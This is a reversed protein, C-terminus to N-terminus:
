GGVEVSLARRTWISKVIVGLLAPLKVLVIGASLSVLVAAAALNVIGAGMDIRFPRWPDRSSWFLLEGRKISIVFVWSLILYTVVMLLGEYALGQSYLFALTALAAPVGVVLVTISDRRSIHSRDALESRGMRLVSSKLKALNLMEYATVPIAMLYNAMAVIWVLEPYILATIIKDVHQHSKTMLGMVAYQWYDMIRRRAVGVGTGLSASKGFNAHNKWFDRLVLILVPATSLAAIEVFRARALDSDILWATLLGAAWAFTLLLNRSLLFRAWRTLEGGYLLRRSQEHVIFDYAVVQAVLFGAYAEGMMTAAIQFVAPVVLVFSFGIVLSYARAERVRFISDRGYRTELPLVWRYSGISMPAMLWAGFTYGLAIVSVSLNDSIFSFLFLSAPRVAVNGVRLM